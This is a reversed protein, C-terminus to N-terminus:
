GVAPVAITPYPVTCPNNAPDTFRVIAWLRQGPRVTLVTFEAIWVGSESGAEMVFPWYDGSFPTGDHAPAPVLDFGKYRDSVIVEPPQALEIAVGDDDAIPGVTLKDPLGEHIHYEAKGVHM